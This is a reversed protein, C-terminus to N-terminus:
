IGTKWRLLSSGTLYVSMIFEHLNNDRFSSSFEWLLKTAQYELTLTPLDRCLAVHETLSAQKYILLHNRFLGRKTFAQNALNAYSVIIINRIQAFHRFRACTHSCCLPVYVFNGQIQKGILYFYINRSLRTAASTLHWQDLSRTLEPKHKCWTLWMCIVVRYPGAESCNVMMQTDSSHDMLLCLRARHGGNIGRRNHWIKSCEQM